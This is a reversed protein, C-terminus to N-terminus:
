CLGQCIPTALNTEVLFHSNEPDINVQWLIILVSLFM